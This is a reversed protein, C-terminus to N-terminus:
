RWNLSVTCHWGVSHLFLQHLNRVIGVCINYYYTKLCEGNMLSFEPWKKLKFDLQKSSPLSVSICTTYSFFALWTCWSCHLRQLMVPEYHEQHPVRTRTSHLSQSYQWVHSAVGTCAVHWCETLNGWFIIKNMVLLKYENSVPPSLLIAIHRVWSCWVIVRALPWAM